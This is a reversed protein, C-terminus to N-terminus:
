LDQLAGKLLLSPKSETIKIYNLRNDPDQMYIYNKSLEKASSTKGCWKSGEILVDGASKLAREILIDAIRPFYKKM